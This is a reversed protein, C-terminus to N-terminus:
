EKIKKISPPEANYDASYETLCYPCSFTQYRLMTTTPNFQRGCECGVSWRNTRYDSSMGAYRLTIPHKEKPKKM